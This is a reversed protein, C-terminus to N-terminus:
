LEHEFFKKNPKLATYISNILAIKLIMLATETNIARHDIVREERSKKYAATPLM